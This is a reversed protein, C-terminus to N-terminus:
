FHDIYGPEGLIPMPRVAKVRNAYHVILGPEDQVAFIRKTSDPNCEVFSGNLLPANAFKRSLHWFDFYDRMNNAVLNQKDRMENFRGQFGFVKADDATGQVFIEQNLVAQESLNAFERFYYDFRTKRTWQRPIGQPIYSPRPLVSLIGMILGYEHVFYKGIRTSDATIGHGALNGQPSTQDTSSTQLVESIIIPSKTGGIYEPRNLRDDRPSVGFHAHLFETYRVGARANREQWRSIQFALRLDAVNFATSEAEFEGDFTATSSATSTVGLGSTYQMNPWTNSGARMFVNNSPYGESDTGISFQGIVGRNTNFNGSGYVSSVVNTNVGVSVDSGIITTVPLAPVVGRQIWPLASTFYDKTWARNLININDLDVEEILNQDRYYENYILNYSNVPFMVPSNAETLPIDSESEVPIRLGIYDLLTGKHEKTLAEIKASLLPPSGVYDADKGGTIFEEWDDWLLRYPVFFYHTTVYVDHLIPALMPQMRVVMENSMTFHDGPVVEDCFVPVLQAMDCDFLKTYSLDFVSRGPKLAGTKQFVSGRRM